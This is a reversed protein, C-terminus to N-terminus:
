LLSNLLKVLHNILELLLHEFASDCLVDVRLSILAIYFLLVQQLLLGVLFLAGLLVSLLFFLLLLLLTLAGVLGGAPLLLGRKKRRRALFLLRLVMKVVMLAVTLSIRRLHTLVLLHLSSRDTAHLLLQLAM